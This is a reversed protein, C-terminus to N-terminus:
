KMIMHMILNEIIDDEYIWKIIIDDENLLLIIKM